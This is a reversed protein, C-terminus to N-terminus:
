YGLLLADLTLPNPGDNHLNPCASAGQLIPGSIGSQPDLPALRRFLKQSKKPAVWIIVQRARNTGM